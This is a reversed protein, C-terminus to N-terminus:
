FSFNSCSRSLFSVVSLSLSLSRSLRLSFSRALRCLSPQSSSIMGRSNFPPYGRRTDANRAHPPVLPSPGSSWNAPALCRYSNVATYVCNILSSYWPPAALPLSRSSDPWLSLSSLSLSVLSQHSLSSFPSLALLLSLLSLFVSSAFSFLSLSLSSFSPRISCIRAAFLSPCLSSASSQGTPQLRLKSEPYATGATRMTAPFLMKKDCVASISIKCSVPPRFTGSDIFIEYNYSIQVDVALYKHCLLLLLIEWIRDLHKTLTHTQAITYKETQQCIKNSVLSAGDNRSVDEEERALSCSRVLLDERLM